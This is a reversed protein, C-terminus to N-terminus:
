IFPERGAMKLILLLFGEEYVLQLPVLLWALWRYSLIQLLGFATLIFVAFIVEILDFGLQEFVDFLQILGVKM